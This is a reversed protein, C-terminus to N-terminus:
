KKEKKPKYGHSYPCGKALCRGMDTLLHGNRCTRAGAQVKARVADEASAIVGPEKTVTVPVPARLRGVEAELQQIEALLNVLEEFPVVALNTREDLTFVVTPVQGVSAGATVQRWWERININRQNKAEVHLRVQRFWDAIDAKNTDGAGSRKDREVKVGLKKRFTAAIYKELEKGKTSAVSM